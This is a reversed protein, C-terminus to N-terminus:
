FRFLIFLLRAFLCTAISVKYKAGQKNTQKCFNDMFSSFIDM